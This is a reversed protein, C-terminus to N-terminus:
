HLIEPERYYNVGLIDLRKLYIKIRQKYGEFDKQNQPTWAVESLECMRPFSMLEAEGETKIHETWLCGQVGIVNGLFDFVEDNGACYVDEFVGWKAAVEFKRGTCSLNPFAALVAVCHGLMEIEPVVTIHRAEAYRVIEKIEDQTYIKGYKQGDEYDRVM